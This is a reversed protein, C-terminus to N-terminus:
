LAEMAHFLHDTRIRYAGGRNCNDFSGSSTMREIPRMNLYDNGRLLFLLGPLIVCFMAQWLCGIPEFGIHEV